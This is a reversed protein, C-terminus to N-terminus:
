VTGTLDDRMRTGESFVRALVFALLVALWGTVSFGADLHLPTSSTSIADAIAGIAISVLQLALLVKAIVQLRVANAAVFPDGERVTEVIDRLRRLLLDNLPICLLGLLPIARLGFAMDPVASSTIGLARFIWDPEVITALLIMLIGAGFLWNLVILIRVALHLIPLAASYARTM